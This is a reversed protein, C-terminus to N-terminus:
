QAAGAVKPELASARKRLDDVRALEAKIQTIRQEREVKYTAASTQAAFVSEELSRHHEAAIDIFHDRTQRQV